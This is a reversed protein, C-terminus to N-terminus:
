GIVRHNFRVSKQRIPGAVQPEDGAQRGNEAAQHDAPHFHKGEFEVLSLSAACPHKDFANEDNNEGNADEGGAEDKLHVPGEGDDGGDEDVDEGGNQCLFLNDM